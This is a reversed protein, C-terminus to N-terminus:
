LTLASSLSQGAIHKRQGLAPPTWVVPRRGQWTLWVRHEAELRDPFEFRVHTPRGHAEVALVSIKLEGVRRTTGLKPLEANSAFFSEYPTSGWGLAAHVDLTREDIREFDLDSRGAYLQQLSRPAAQLPTQARLTHYAYYGLVEAPSDILVVDRDSPAADCLARNTRQMIEPNSALVPFLLPALCAHMGIHLPRGYRALASRPRSATDALFTGILGFAGFSAGVLLRDQPITTLMPAICALTGLAFFRSERSSRLQPLLCAVCLAAIPLAILRAIGPTTSAAVDVSGPGFAGVLWLPLDLLGQGLVNLPSSLSRSWGSARLGYPRQLYLAAWVAAVCLHPWLTRMRARLSGRELAVAAACLYALAWLGAEGAALALATAAVSAFSLARSRMRRARLQLLLALLAFLTSLATSRASIWAANVAHGDDIAFLLAALAAARSGPLIERYALTAVAVSLAYIAINISRMWVPAHPFHRFEFWHMVSALPRMFEFTLRPSAWWPFEGFQRGAQIAAPSFYFLGAPSHQGDSVLTQFVNDDAQFGHRLTPLTLLTAVIALHLPARKTMLGDSIRSLLPRQAGAVGAPNGALV